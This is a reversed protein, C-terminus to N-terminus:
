AADEGGSPSPKDDLEPRALLRNMEILAGRVKRLIEHKEQRSFLGSDVLSITKDVLARLAKETESM